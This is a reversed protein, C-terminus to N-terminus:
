ILDLIYGDVNFDLIISREYGNVFDRVPERRIDYMGFDIYNDGIANDKNYVWGVVQGAKTCPIGLEKYVDNLFLYGNAKLYDNAWNQVGRLFMLNYDADKQWYPSAEDFFKAYPSYNPVDGEIVDVSKKIKKEKGTEDDIEIETINKAKIGYRLEKDIHEGYKEIVNSRYEKFAKDVGAYAAALAANRGNLIKHSTLVCGISAVGLIVAPAYLKAIEVGTKAYTIALDKKRDEETYEVELTTDNAAANIIEIDNKSQELVGSIKTTAKCALVTSTVTGVVGAGVLIHPAYKKLKLMGMRFTKVVFNKNM